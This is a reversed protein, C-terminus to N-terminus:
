QTTYVFLQRFAAWFIITTCQVIYQVLLHNVVSINKQLNMMIPFVTSFNYESLCNYQVIGLIGSHRDRRGFQSGGGVRGCALTDGGSPVLPPLAFFVRKHTHPRPSSIRVVLSFAQSETIQSIYLLNTSTCISCLCIYFISTRFHYWQQQTYLIVNWSFISHFLHLTVPLM